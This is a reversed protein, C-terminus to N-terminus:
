FSGALGIVFMQHGDVKPAVFEVRDGRMTFPVPEGQPVATVSEVGSPARVSLTIDYVPIVDEIVDFQQGRREIQCAAADRDQAAFM